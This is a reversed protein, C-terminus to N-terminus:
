VKSVRGAWAGAAPWVVRAYQLEGALPELSLLVIWNIWHLMKYFFSGKLVLSPKANIQTKYNTTELKFNGLFFNDADSSRTRASRSGLGSPFYFSLRVPYVFNHSSRRMTHLWSIDHASM